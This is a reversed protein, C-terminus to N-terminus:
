FHSKFANIAHIEFLAAIDPLFDGRAHLMFGFQAFTQRLNFDRTVGIDPGLDDGLIAFGSTCQM